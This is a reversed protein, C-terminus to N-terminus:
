KFQRHLEGPMCVTCSPDFRSLVSDNEEYDADIVFLVKKIAQRKIDLKLEKYNNNDLKFFNSKTGMGFFKVADLPLGLNEILLKILENDNTKKDNGEHFIAVKVM